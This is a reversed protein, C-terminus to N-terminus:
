AVRKRVAVLGIAALGAMLCTAPEPVPNVDTVYIRDTDVFEGADSYTGTFAFRVSNGDRDGANLSSAGLNATGLLAYAGAGERSYVSYQDTTKDLELVIRLPTSRSLALPLDAAVNSSGTGLAEGSLVLTNNALRDITMEATVTSSNAAVPDKNDLFGFRLRELPTSGTVTYEWGAIDAVLWVKGSTVNPIDFTNGVQGTVPAVEGGKQIRFSGSQVGANIATNQSLFFNTANASNAAATIVTGNADNFRFDEIIGARTAGCALLAGALSLCTLLTNKM